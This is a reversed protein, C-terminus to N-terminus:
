RIICKRFRTIKGQDNPIYSVVRSRDSRSCRLIEAGGVISVGLILVLKRFLEDVCCVALITLSLAVDSVNM